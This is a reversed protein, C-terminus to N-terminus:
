REHGSKVKPGRRFIMTVGSVNPPNLPRKPVSSVSTKGRTSFPRVMVGEIGTVSTEHVTRPGGTMQGRGYRACDM